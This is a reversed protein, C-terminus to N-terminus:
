ANRANPPEVLPTRRLPRLNRVLENMPTSDSSSRLSKALMAALATMLEVGWPASKLYSMVTVFEAELVRLTPVNQNAHTGPSSKRAVDGMESVAGVPQDSVIVWPPAVSPNAM